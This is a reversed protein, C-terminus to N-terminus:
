VTFKRDSLFSQILKVLYLDIGLDILKYIIGNHCVSDFAKEIDLNIAVTCCQNRLNSSIDRHFKLLAHQTSHFQRFGFQLDSIPNIIFENEIKEKLVHEFVKGLNPLLSIPRFDPLDVSDNKKKIPIIQALKWDTPFYCNNICHNVICTLLDVTSQRFKKIIYNSIGDVGCSKKSNVNKIIRGIKTSKTFHYGDLNSFVNFNADFTFTHNPIVEIYNLISSDLDDM